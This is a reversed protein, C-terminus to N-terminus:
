TLTFSPGDDVCDTVSSYYRLSFVNERLSFAAHFPRIDVAGESM